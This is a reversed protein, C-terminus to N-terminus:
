GSSEHRHHDLRWHNGRCRTCVTLFGHHASLVHLALRSARRWLLLLLGGEYFAHDWFIPDSESGIAARANYDYPNDLDALGQSVRLDLTTQGHPLADALRAYQDSEFYHSFEASYQVGEFCGTVSNLMFISLFIAVFCLIALDYLIRGSRSNPNNASTNASM